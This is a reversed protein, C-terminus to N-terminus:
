GAEWRARSLFLRGGDSNTCTLGTEESRCTFPGAVLTEGYALVPPDAGLEGRMTDSACLPEAPGSARMTIGSWDFDCVEDPPPQLQSTMECQLYPGNGYDAALCAINGSPTEFGRQESLDVTAVAGPEPDETASPSPSAAAEDVDDDDTTDTADDEPSAAPSPDVDDPEPSPAEALEERLEDVEAELDTIEAELEAVRDAQDEASTGGCAAAVLALGVLAVLRGRVM